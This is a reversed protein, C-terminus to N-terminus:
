TDCMCICSKYYIIFKSWFEWKIHPNITLKFNTVANYLLNEKM